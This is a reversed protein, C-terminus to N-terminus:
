RAPRPMGLAGRMRMESVSKSAQQGKTLAAPQTTTGSDHEDADAAKRTQREVVSAKVAKIADEAETKVKLLEAAHEAEKDDFKKTLAAVESLVPQLAASLAASLADGAVEPAAKVVESTNTAAPEIVPETKSAGTAAAAGADNTNVDAGSNATGDAPAKPKNKKAAAKAQIRKRKGDMAAKSAGTASALFLGPLAGPADGPSSSIVPAYTYTGDAAVGAKIRFEPFLVDGLLKGTDITDPEGDKAAKVRYPGFANDAELFVTPDIEFPIDHPFIAALTAVVKAADAFITPINGSQNMIIANRTAAYVACLVECFGPPIGDFGDALADTLTIEDSFEVGWQDFKLRLQELVNTGLVDGTAIVVVKTADEVVPEAAGAVAAPAAAPDTVDGEAKAVPQVTAGNAATIISGAANPDPQEAALTAEKVVAEPKKYISMTIGDNEIDTLGETPADADIVEFSGDAKKTITQGEYNGAALWAAVAAEDKYAEGKFVIKAIEHTASKMKLQMTNEPTDESKMARFPIMNAGTKVISVFEPKADTLATATRSITKPTRKM